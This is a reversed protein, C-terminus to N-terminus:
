GDTAEPSLLAEGEAVRIKDGDPRVGKVDYLCHIPTRNEDQAQDFALAETTEDPCYLNVMGDTAPSNLTCTLSLVPASDSYKKKVKATFTWGTLDLPADNADVLQFAHWFSAGQEIKIDHEILAM